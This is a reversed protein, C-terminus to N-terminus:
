LTADDSPKVTLEVDDSNGTGEDDSDDESPPFVPEEEVDGENVLEYEKVTPETTDTKAVTDIMITDVGELRKRSAAAAPSGLKGGEEYAVRADDLEDLHELATGLNNFMYGTADALSTAEKLHEVADEYRKLLLETYGLNNWAFSNTPNLEVSKTFALIAEEYKHANLEARGLTNYAQSSTPALKVAKNASAVAKGKEGSVIYMRALEIHVDASKSKLKLAADFMTKADGYKGEAVLKKGEDMLEDYKTPMPKPEVIKVVPDTSISTDVNTVPQADSKPQAVYDEVKFDVTSERDGGCAAVPIVLAFLISRFQIKM